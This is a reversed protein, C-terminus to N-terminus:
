APVPNSAPLVQPVYRMVEGPRYPLAGPRLRGRAHWRQWWSQAFRLLSQPTGTGLNHIQPAGPALPHFVFHLFARAAQEVPCFDRVQEGPTMPFDNGSRAAAQLMPFFRHPAEGEGFVHFPRLVALELGRQRALSCAAISAAAKSAGYASTPELPAEVPIFEYREGSRGYEFCSGAIVLRRVGADAAQLWLRLSATFNWRMCEPWTDFQPNVGHAALHLLVNTQALVPALDTELDGEVWHPEMPLPGRVTEGPLRLATVELGQELLARLVHSGIFGTGGTIFVRM